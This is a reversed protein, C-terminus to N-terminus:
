RSEVVLELYKKNLKSTADLNVWRVEVSSAKDLKTVMGLGWPSRDGDAPWPILQVLDGVKM